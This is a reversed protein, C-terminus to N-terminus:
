NRVTSNGSADAQCVMERGSLGGGARRMRGGEGVGGRAEGAALAADAVTADEENARVRTRRNTKARVHM